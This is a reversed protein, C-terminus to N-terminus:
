GIRSSLNLLIEVDGLIRVGLVIWHDRM